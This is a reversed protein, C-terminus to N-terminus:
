NIQPDNSSIPPTPPPPPPRPHIPSLLQTHHDHRFPTHPPIVKGEIQPKVGPHVHQSAPSVYLARKIKRLAPILKPCKAIRKIAEESLAARTRHPAQCRCKWAEVRAPTSLRRRARRVAHSSFPM